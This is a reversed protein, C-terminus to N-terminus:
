PGGDPHQNELDERIDAEVLPCREHEETRSDNVPVGCIPCCPPDDHSEFRAGCDCRHM